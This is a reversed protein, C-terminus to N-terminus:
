HRPATDSFMIMLSDPHHYEVPPQSPSKTTDTQLMSQYIPQPRPCCGLSSLPSVFNAAFDFRGFKLKKRGKVVPAGLGPKHIQVLAGVHRCARAQGFNCSEKKKDLLPYLLFLPRDRQEKHFIPQEHEDEHMLSPSNHSPSAYHKM